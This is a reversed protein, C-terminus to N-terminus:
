QCPPSWQNTELTKKYTELQQMLENVIAEHEEKSPKQQLMPKKFAYQIIMVNKCKPPHFSKSILAEYSMQERTPPFVVLFYGNGENDISSVKKAVGQNALVKDFSMNFTKADVNINQNLLTVLKTWNEVPENKTYEWLTPTKYAVSYTDGFLEITEPMTVNQAMM